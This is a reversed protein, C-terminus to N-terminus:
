ITCLMEIKMRLRGDLWSPETHCPLEYLRLFPFNIQPIYEFASCLKEIFYVYLLLNEEFFTTIINYNYYLMM